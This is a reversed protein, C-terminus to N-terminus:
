WDGGLAKYVAILDTSLAQQSDVLTSLSALWTDRVLTLETYDILGSNFKDTALDYARKYSETSITLNKVREEDNFYAVLAQEVEQLATIVIKQYNLYAQERLAVQVDVAALRRGFDLVPWEVFAGIGWVRSPGTFLKSAQDSAYGINAGQLPNSAFSGSSGTLTISPYLQAVAVGIDETAAALQREASRIDHRRRLLDGPLGAPIRGVAFPIPREIDFQGVIQEPTQGLLVGLSYIKQKLAIQLVRLSALDRELVARATEMEQQDGLGAQLRESSLNFLEEDAQITQVAISVKKQLAAITAYTNAVESLVTIKVDRSTEAAAEWKDFASDASRRLKGFLDIEWIADFGIQFFNRIPSIKTTNATPTAPTPINATSDQFAQSQRFRSATADFVIEPLIQTFQVWYQERAQYVQALAIRYDFSGDVAEELLSNLFPDDFITWWKILDKDDPIFTQEERDEAYTLPMPSCPMHYDPGVKCGTLLSLGLFLVKIIKRLKM